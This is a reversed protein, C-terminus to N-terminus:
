ITVLFFPPEDGMGAPALKQDSTYEDTSEVAPWLTHGSGECRRGDMSDCFVLRASTDGVEARQNFCLLGTYQISVLPLDFIQPRISGLLGLGWTKTCKTFDTYTMILPQPPEQTYCSTSNQPTYM